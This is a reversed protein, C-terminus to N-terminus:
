AAREAGRRRSRLWGVLGNPLFSIVLILILGYLM